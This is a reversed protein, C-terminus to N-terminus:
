LSNIKDLDIRGKISREIPEIKRETAKKKDMPVINRRQEEQPKCSSNFHSIYNEIEDDSLFYGQFETFDTDNCKILGHGNGKLKTARYDGKTGTTVESAVPTSCKFVLYNSLNDRIRGPLIEHRPSQTAIILSINCARARAMLDFLYKQCVKNDMLVSYEDIVIVRLKLPNKTFARNYDKFGKKMNEFLLKYRRNMEGVTERLVQEAEEETTAFGKLHKYRSYGVLECGGKLDILSLEVQSLVMQTILVNLAVSKGSGTCGCILTHLSNTFDLYMEQDLRNVGALFKMEKQKVIGLDLTYRDKFQKDITQIVALHNDLKIEVDQRLAQQIEEQKKKFDGISMGTPIIFVYRTGISNQQTSILKPVTDDIKVKCKELIYEMTKDKALMTCILTTASVIGGAIAFPVAGVAVLGSTVGIMVSSVIYDDINTNM